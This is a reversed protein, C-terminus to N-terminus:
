KRENNSIANYMDSLIFTEYGDMRLYWKYTTRNLDMVIIINQADIIDVVKCYRIKDTLGFPKTNGRNAKRYKYKYWKYM